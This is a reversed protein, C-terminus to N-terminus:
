PPCRMGTPVDDPGTSGDESDLQQRGVTGDTVESESMSRAQHIAPQTGSGAKLYRRGRLAAALAATVSGAAGAGVAVWPSLGAVVIAAAVAAGFVLSGVFVVIVVSLITSRAFGLLKLYCQLM